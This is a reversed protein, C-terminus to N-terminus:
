RSRGAAADKGDRISALFAAIDAMDTAMLMRRPPGGPADVLSAHNWMHTVLAVPSDFATSEALPAAAGADGARLGHCAACGKDRLAARGRAPDGPPDLLQFLYLYSV